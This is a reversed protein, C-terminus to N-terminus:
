KPPSTKSLPLRNIKTNWRCWKFKLSRVLRNRPSIKYRCCSIPEKLFVDRVYFDVDAPSSLTSCPFCVCFSIPYEWLLPSAESDFGFFADKLKERESGLLLENMFILQRLRVKGPLSSRKGKWERRIVMWMECLGPTPSVLLSLVTSKWSVM